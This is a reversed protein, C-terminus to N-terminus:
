MPDVDIQIFVTRFQPLSMTQDILVKLLEKAKVFSAKQEVKLMIRQIYLQQVRTVIPKDPGYVRESFVRRMQVALFNAAQEVQKFERGKINIYILRYYPPYKYSSRQLLQEEYLSQFDNNRVLEIVPHEPTSTQIVVLGRRNKRGARGSVQAMMQFAREYARFDPFNLLADANLIGVLRVREFDLGKSVM